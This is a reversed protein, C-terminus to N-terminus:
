TTVNLTVSEQAVIYAAKTKIAKKIKRELHALNKNRQEIREDEKIFKRARPKREIKEGGM